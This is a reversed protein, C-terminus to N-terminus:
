SLSGDETKSTDRTNQLHTQFFQLLKNENVSFIPIELDCPRKNLNPQIDTKELYIRCTKRGFWYEQCFNVDSVEQWKVSIKTKTFSNSLTIGIDSIEIRVYMAKLIFGLLILMIIIIAPIAIIIEQQIGTAINDFLTILFMVLLMSGSVLLFVVGVIGAEYSPWYIIGNDSYKAKYDKM